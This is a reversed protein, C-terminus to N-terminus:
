STPSTQVSQVLIWYIRRSTLNLIELGSLNEKVQCFERSNRSIKIVTLWSQPISNVIQIFKFYKTSPLGDNGPSKDNPMQQLIRIGEQVTVKGECLNAEDVTLYPTNTESLYNTCEQETM